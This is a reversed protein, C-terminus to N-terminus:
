GMITTEMKKAMMGIYGGYALRYGITSYYSGHEKGNDRNLPQSFSGGPPECAAPQWVGAGCQLAPGKENGEQLSEQSTLCEISM